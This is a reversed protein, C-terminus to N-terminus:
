DFRAGRMPRPRRERRLERTRCVTPTGHAFRRNYAVYRAVAQTLRAYAPPAGGARAVLGFALVGDMHGIM